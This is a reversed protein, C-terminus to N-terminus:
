VRGSRALHSRECSREANRILKLDAGAVFIREKASQLVLAKVRTDHEIAELHHNFERLTEENWVNASSKLTDFVLWAIGDHDVDLRFHKPPIPHGLVINELVHPPDHIVSPRNLFNTKMANLLNLNFLKFNM